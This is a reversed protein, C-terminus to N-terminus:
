NCITPFSTLKTLFKKLATYEKPKVNNERSLLERRFLDRDISRQERRKQEQELYVTIKNTKRNARPIKHSQQSSQNTTNQQSAQLEANGEINEATETADETDTVNTVADNTVLANNSRQGSTLYPPLFNMQKEYKWSRTESNAAEGTTLKRKNLAQRHGDRLRKWMLKAEKM